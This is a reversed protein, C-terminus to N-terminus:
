SSGSGLALASSSSAFVLCTNGLINWSVPVGQLSRKFDASSNPSLASGRTPRLSADHNIQPKMQHSQGHMSLTQNLSEFRQM